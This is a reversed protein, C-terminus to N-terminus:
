NHFHMSSTAHVYWDLGQHDAVRSSSAARHLARCSLRPFSPPSVDAINDSPLSSSLLSLPVSPSSAPPYIYWTYTENPHRPATTLASSTPPLFHTLGTHIMMSPTGKRALGSMRPANPVARTGMEHRERHHSFRVQDDPRLGSNIIMGKTVWHHRYGEDEEVSEVGQDRGPSGYEALVGADELRM